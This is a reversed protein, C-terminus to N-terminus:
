LKKKFLKNVDVDKDLIEYIHKNIITLKNIMTDNFEVFINISYVVVNFITKIKTSKENLQKILFFKNKTKTLTIQFFQRITAFKLSLTIIFSLKFQKRLNKLKQM